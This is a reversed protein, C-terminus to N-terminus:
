HPHRLVQNERLSILFFFYSVSVFFHFFLGPFLFLFLSLSTCSLCTRFIRFSYPIGFSFLPGASPLLLFSAVCRKNMALPVAASCECCARYQRLSCLRSSLLKNQAARYSGVLFRPHAPQTTLANLWAESHRSSVFVGDYARLCGQCNM